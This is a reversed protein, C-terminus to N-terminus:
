NKWRSIKTVFKYSHDSARVIDMLFNMDKRLKSDTFDKVPIYKLPKAVGSCGFILKHSKVCEASCTRYSCEPCKYKSQLKCVCCEM